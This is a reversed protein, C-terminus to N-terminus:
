KKHRTGCHSCIEYEDFDHTCTESTPKGRMELLTDRWDQPLAVKAIDMMTRLQEEGEHYKLIEILRNIPYEALEQLPIGLKKHLLKYIDMVGKTRHRTLFLEIQGLYASWPANEDGLVDRWQQGEKIETLIEGMQLLLLRRQNELEVIRKNNFFAKAGDREEQSLKRTRTM